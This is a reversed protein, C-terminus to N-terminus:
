FIGYLIFYFLSISGFILISWQGIINLKYLMDSQDITFSYSQDNLKAYVWTLPVIMMSLVVLAAFIQLSLALLVIVSLIGLNILRKM